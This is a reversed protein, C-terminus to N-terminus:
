CHETTEGPDHSNSQCNKGFVEIALPITSVVGVALLALGVARRQDDTLRGAILFGIGVGLVVRTGAILALEPLSVSQERM